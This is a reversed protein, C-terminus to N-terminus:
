RWCSFTKFLLGNSMRSGMVQVVHRRYVQLQATQRWVRFAGAALRHEWHLLVTVLQQQKRARAAVYDQWSFFCVARLRHQWFLLARGKTHRKTQCSPVFARWANWVVQLIQM